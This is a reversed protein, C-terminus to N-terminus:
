AKEVRRSGAEVSFAALTEIAAEGSELRVLFVYRRAGRDFDGGEDEVFLPGCERRQIPEARPLM